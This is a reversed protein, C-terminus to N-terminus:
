KAEERRLPSGQEPSAYNVILKSAGMAHAYAKNLLGVIVDVGEEDMGTADVAKIAVSLAKRAEHLSDMAVACMRRDTRTEKM